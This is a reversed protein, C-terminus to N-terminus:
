WLGVGSQSWRSKPRSGLTITGAACPCHLCSAAAAQPPSHAWSHALRCRYQPRSRCSARHPRCLCSGVPPCGLTRSQRSLALHQGRRYVARTDIQAVEARADGSAGAVIHWTVDAVREVRAHESDVVVCARDFVDGLVAHEVRGGLLPSDIVATGDCSKGEDNVVVDVPRICRVVTKHEAGERAQRRERLAAGHGGLSQAPEGERRVAHKVDGCARVSGVGVGGAAAHNGQLLLGRRRLLLRAAARFYQPTPLRV